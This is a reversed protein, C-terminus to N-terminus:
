NTSIYFLANNNCKDQSRVDLSRIDQSWIKQACINCFCLKVLLHGTVLHGTVLHGQAFIMHAFIRCALTWTDTPPPLHTLLPVSVELDLVGDGGKFARAAEKLGGM